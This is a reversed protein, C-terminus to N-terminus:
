VNWNETWKRLRRSQSTRRGDEKVMGALCEGATEFSVHQVKKDLKNLCNQWNVKSNKHELQEKIQHTSTFHSFFFTFVLPVNSIFNQVSFHWLTL